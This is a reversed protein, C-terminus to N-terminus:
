LSLTKICPVNTIILNILSLYKKANWFCLSFVLISKFAFDKFCANLPLKVNEFHNKKIIMCSSSCNQVQGFIFYLLFDFAHPFSWFARSFLFIAVLSKKTKKKFPKKKILLAISDKWLFLFYYCLFPQHAHLVSGFVHFADM